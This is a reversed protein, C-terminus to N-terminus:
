PTGIFLYVSSAGSDSQGYGLYVPGLPTEGGLYLTASNLWGTRKTEMYPRGVKATELALGARMDGRLGLPLRGIIKEARLGFYRIDDGILQNPAFGGLNHFGGLTGADYIPLRGQLAGQYSLKANLVYDDLAYAGHLDITLKGYDENPSNFYGFRASWGSTPFYLRDMQDFDLALYAGSSTGTASDPFIFSPIGTTLDYELWRKRWGAHLQGLQGVNVGAGLSAVGRFMEYDALKHDDQYFGMTEKGYSLGSEVFYRQRADLPQYLDIGLQNTRGIEAGVLLEGGLSNLWTKDYAARLTFTSDEKFDSQLNVGFRLYDTGWSKEVPMVHLINRDRVNVLSYDVSEYWGDGYIRLMDRNIRADDIPDGRKVRLHREVAAPNVGKLGDIVVADVPPPSQRVYAINKTWAAYEDASVALARLRESVAEAAARGRDATESSRQFDGATIGELDPKIYIDSPKLLALSRSVNQETLINIMQASVTFLSGVEEAKMLPSGVNVAIVVDALCRERVETVPLNDVLGGDVLKRERYNVPALLGPVSMSARMAMTLSGDRYVVREGTGIDTAVISLPLALTEIDREGLDSNVLRNFFLKIKQGAVVGGKYAVGDSGVGTELGPMFRKSIAKNRYSIESYSPNDQFMDNWDAKALERRLEAPTRGAAFAGAALAGMSTGAVCDVPVRLQELVELVGVHAAGRAGGGGLVLGVRPRGTTDAAWLSPGALLLGLLALNRFAFSFTM